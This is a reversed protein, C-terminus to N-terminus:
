DNKTVETTTQKHEQPVNCREARIELWMKKHEAWFDKVTREVIWWMLPLILFFAEGGISAVAREANAARNLVAFLILGCVTIIAYKIVKKVM